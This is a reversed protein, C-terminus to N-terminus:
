PLRLEGDYDPKRWQVRHLTSSPQGPSRVEMGGLVKVSDLATDVLGNLPERSM